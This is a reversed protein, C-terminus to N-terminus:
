KHVALCSNITSARRNRTQLLKYAGSNPEVLLGTWSLNAQGAAFTVILVLSASGFGGLAVVKQNLQHGQWM